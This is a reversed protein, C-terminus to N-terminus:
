LLIYIWTLKCLTESTTKLFIIHPEVLLIRTYTNTKKKEVLVTSIKFRM